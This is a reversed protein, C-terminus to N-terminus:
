RRQPSRLLRARAVRYIFLPNGILYRRWLKAPEVALRCLWELGHETMLRPGRAIRGSVFEFLAGVAWVVPADLQDRHAAIWREQRPSGMGVLLIDPRCQNIRGVTEDSLGFGSSCGVIRLGPYRVRLAAAAQGAVGSSSGLFFLSLDERVAMRCLDHIWDAGTMRQPIHLGLLRAGFRVGTGDCYVIDAANLIHRFDEHAHALNVTHVNVYHVKVPISARVADLVVSLLQPLRVTDIRVGLFTVSDV